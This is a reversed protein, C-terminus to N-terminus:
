AAMYRNRILHDLSLRGPGYTMTVLLALAWWGHTMYADPYVFIQITLTMILLATASFRSALGIVLLMPFFHEAFTAAYAAVDSPILPLKYEEQFLFFTSDKLAFGDVKTRGSAWFVSAVLARALLATVDMPIREYLRIIAAIRDPFGPAGATQTAMATKM